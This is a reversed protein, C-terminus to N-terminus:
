HHEIWEVRFSSPSVRIVSTVDIAIM